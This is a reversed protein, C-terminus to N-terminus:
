TELYLKLVDERRSDTWGDMVLVYNRYTNQNEQIENTMNNERKKMCIM